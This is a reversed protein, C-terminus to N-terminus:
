GSHDHKPRCRAIKPMFYRGHESFDSGHTGANGARNKYGTVTIINHTGPNEPNENIWYEPSTHYYRLISWPLRPIPDSMSTIRYSLSSQKSMFAVAKKNGLRPSGYTFLETRKALDVTEKRFDAAALTAIAGGLSHGTIVFRYDPHANLAQLATIMISDRVGTWSEWFGYHFKCHKCLYSHTKWIELNEVWNLRSITGRFVLVVLRNVDDVAIFGTDDSQPINEFEEISYAGAAEVLPCNGTPCTIPTGTSNNNGPCYGAASYQAMLNFQHLLEESIPVNKAQIDRSIIPSTICLWLMFIMCISINLRAM